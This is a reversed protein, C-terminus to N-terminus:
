LINNHCWCMRGWCRIHCFISFSSFVAPDIIVYSKIMIKLTFM